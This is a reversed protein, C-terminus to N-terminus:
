GIVEFDGIAMRIAEDIEMNESFIYEYLKRNRERKEKTNAILCDGKVSAFFMAVDHVIFTDEYAEALNRNNIVNDQITQLTNRFIRYQAENLKKTASDDIETDVIEFEGIAMKIAEDIDMEKSLIYDHM